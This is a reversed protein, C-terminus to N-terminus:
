VGGGGGGADLDVKAQGGLGIGREGNAEFYNGFEVFVVFM